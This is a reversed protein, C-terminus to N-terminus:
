EDLTPLAQLRVPVTVEEGDRLVTVEVETGVKHDALANFLDNSRQIEKGEIRIILDGWDISGDAQRRTPQLGAEEASSHTLVDGILVGARPLLGATILRQTFADGFPSIGMGPRDVKGDRILDPIIRNVTDVPVAFGIGAYAGSPSYIATNVGILRGASDLLPGGSNGPNIAADTQIVDRIPRGSASQIERGLGSVVGTTLTQDLSFPNGIAFAKQGVQLDASTGVSIPMLRATPADIRLVALDNDPAAGVLRADWSSNDSLTVRAVQANQIVHYNTIVHGDTDWVFGSGTGQPIEFLNLSVRDRQVALTTIHVVAPSAARFMEIQSTEDDALNGRATIARPQADPNHLPRFLQPTDRFFLALVAAFLAVILWTNIRTGSEGASSPRHSDPEARGTDYESSM